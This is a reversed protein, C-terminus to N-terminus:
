LINKTHVSLYRNCIGDNRQGRYIKVLLRADYVHEAVLSLVLSMKKLHLRLFNGDCKAVKKKGLHIIFFFNFVLIMAPITIVMEIISMIMRKHIANNTNEFLFTNSSLPHDLIFGKELVNKVLEQEPDRTQPFPPVVVPLQQKYVTMKHRYREMGGTMWRTRTKEDDESGVM